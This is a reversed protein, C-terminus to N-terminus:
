TPDRRTRRCTVGLRERILELGRAYLRHASSSSSSTMAAIQEFSLGGWLHAVIVERESDPLARLAEAADEPEITGASREFWGAAEMAAEHRRRRRSARGADMAGNRVVRFLWAAPEDPPEALGALKLFAEQVVDEPVDCWQRAFLELAAAHRDLLEGLREPEM